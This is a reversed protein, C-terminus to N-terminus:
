IYMQKGNTNLAESLKLNVCNILKFKLASKMGCRPIAYLIRM